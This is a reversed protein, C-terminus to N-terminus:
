DRSPESRSMFTLIASIPFGSYGSFFGRLWILISLNWGMHPALSDIGLRLSPLRWTCRCMYDLCAISLWKCAIVSLITDLLRWHIVKLNIKVVNQFSPHKSVKLFNAKTRVYIKWSVKPYRIQASILSHNLWHSRLLHFIWPQFNILCLYKKSHSTSDIPAVVLCCPLLLWHLKWWDMWCMSFCDLCM